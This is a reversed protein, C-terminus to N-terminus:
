NVLQLVPDKRTNVIARDTVQPLGVAEVNAKLLYAGRTKNALQYWSESLTRIQHEEGIAWVCGGRGAGAFRAGCHNQNAVKIFNELEPTLVEPNISKRIAVEEQMVRVASSWDQRQLTDGFEKTLENLTIWKERNAGYFFSQMSRLNMENSSRALGTYAVLIHKNADKIQELNWLIKRKFLLARNEYHWSWINAGGYAAAAQDQLGTFSLRLGDEIEHALEVIEKLSFASKVNGLKLAKIIVDILAVAVTGSGGLGSRNPFSSSIRIYVGSIRFFYCIAFILGLPTDFPLQSIHSEEDAFGKASVKIYDPIYSELSVQTRLNLAINITQPKVHHGILALAKADWMGGFDVRCPASSEVIKNTLVEHLDIQALNTLIMITCEEYYADKSINCNIEM